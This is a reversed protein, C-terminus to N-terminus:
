RHSNKKIILDTMKEILYSTKKTENMFLYENILRYVELYYKATLGSTSELVLHINNSDGESVMREVYDLVASRHYEFDQKQTLIYDDLENMSAVVRKFSDLVKFPFEVSFRSLDEALKNDQTRRHNQAVESKELCLRNDIEEILTDIEAVANKRMYSSFDSFHISLAWKLKENTVGAM